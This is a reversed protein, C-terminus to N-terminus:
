NIPEGHIFATIFDAMDQRKWQPAMHGAGHVSAFYFNDYGIIYGSVQGNTTWPRWPETIAWNQNQIWRKTGLIPVAGDTDGSYFLIKYGYAKLIPYIWM